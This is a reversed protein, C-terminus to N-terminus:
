MVACNSRDDNYGTSTGYSGGKNGSGSNAITCGSGTTDDDIVRLSSRLVIEYADDPFELYKVVVNDSGSGSGSGGSSISVVSLIIM